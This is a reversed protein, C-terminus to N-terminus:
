QQARIWEFPSAFQSLENEIQLYLFASRLDTMKIIEDEVEEGFDKWENCLAFGGSAVKCLFDLIWPEGRHSKLKFGSENLTSKIGTLKKMMKQMRDIIVFKIFIPKAANFLSQDDASKNNLKKIFLKLLKLKVEIWDDLSLIWLSLALSDAPDELGNIM